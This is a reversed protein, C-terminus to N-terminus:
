DRNLQSKLKVLESFSSEDLNKALKNELLEIEKLQTFEKIEVLLEDLLVLREEQTKKSLINRLIANNEVELILKSFKEKLKSVLNSTKLDKSSLNLIENKLMNNENSSFNIESLEETKLQTIKKYNLM